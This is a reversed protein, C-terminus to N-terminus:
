GGKFRARFYGISPHKKLERKVITLEIDKKQIEAKLDVVQKELKEVETPEKEILELIM